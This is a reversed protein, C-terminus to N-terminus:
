VKYKNIKRALRTVKIVYKIRKAGGDPYKMINDVIENYIEIQKHINNINMGKDLERELRKIEEEIEPILGIFKKEQENFAEMKDKVKYKAIDIKEEVQKMLKKILKTKMM